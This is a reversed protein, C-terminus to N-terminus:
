VRAGMKALRRADSLVAIGMGELERKTLPQRAREIAHAEDAWAALMLSLGRLSFRQDDTIASFEGEEIQAALQAGASALQESLNAPGVDLTAIIDSLM